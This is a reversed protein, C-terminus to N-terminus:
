VALSGEKSDSELAEINAMRDNLAQISAQMDNVKEQLLDRQELLLAKRQDITEDGGFDYLQIYRISAEISLGSSRMEKAFSLWCLDEETFNRIGNERRPVPPILGIKEYYRITDASIESRQSAEKINM